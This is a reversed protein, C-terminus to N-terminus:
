LNSYCTVRRFIVMEGTHSNYIPQGLTANMEQAYTVCHRGNAFEYLETRMTKPGPNNFLQYDATLCWAMICAATLM